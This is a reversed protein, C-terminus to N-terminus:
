GGVGRGRRGGLVCGPVGHRAQQTIMGAGGVCGLATDPQTHIRIVHGRYM